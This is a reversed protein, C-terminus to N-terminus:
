DSSVLKRQWGFEFTGATHRGLNGRTAQARAAAGVLRDAELSATLTDDKGLAYRTEATPGITTVGGGEGAHRRQPASNATRASVSRPLRYISDVYLRDGGRLKGGLDLELGPALTYTRSTTLEAKLGRRALVGETVELRAKSEHPLTWEGFGGIGGTGFAAAFPRDAVGASPRERRDLDFLLGAKVVPDSFVALSLGDRSSAEFVDGYSLEAFPIPHFLYRRGGNRDPGALASAGAELTWGKATDAAEDCDAGNCAPSIAAPSASRTPSATEAATAAVASLGLAAFVLWRTAHGAASARPM